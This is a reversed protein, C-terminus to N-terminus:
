PLQVPLGAEIDVALKALVTPTLRVGLPGLSQALVTRIQAAPRGRYTRALGQLVARAYGQRQARIQRAVSLRRGAPHASSARVIPEVRNPVSASMPAM